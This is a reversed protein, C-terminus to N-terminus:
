WAIFYKFVPVYITYIYHKTTQKGGKVGREDNNSYLMFYFLSLLLIIKIKVIYDDCHEYYM